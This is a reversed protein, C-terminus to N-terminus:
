HYTYFGQGTKRGLQGAAVMKRLLPCARYKTDGFEHYLVDMIHLVIDLGLLDAVELPGMPHGAGLKMVDDIARPTGVGEYLCFIGENIMVMFVRSMAFGPWDNVEVPTKDLKKALEVVLSNTEDSTLYGRIVEVLEMVPAPNFFHMGIVKDPRSTVAAIPTIPLSSTNSALIVEPRAYEDLTKFVEKKVETDEFVAEVIFDAEAAAEWDSRIDIKDMVAGIREEPIKGKEFARQMSKKVRRLGKEAMELDRDMLLVHYGSQAFVQAIGSGMVGAGEVLVKEIDM